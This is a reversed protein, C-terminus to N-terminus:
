YEYSKVYLSSKKEMSYKEKAAKMQSDFTTDIVIWKGAASDYVENWAHYGSVNSTYGMVLKTPIGASRLMAAFTSSYDYCIGKGSKVITDVDPIYGSTLTKYKDYDYKAASIVYNYIVKIKEKDTKLGKVLSRAKIVALSSDDWNVNQTSALFVSNDNALDVDVSQSYASRYKNGTVNEFITVKYTGDGLQLPYSETIGDNNINYIYKSGSKEIQIKGKKDAESVFSASVIGQDVNSVDISTQKTTGEASVSITGFMLSVILIFAAVIRRM